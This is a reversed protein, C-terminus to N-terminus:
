DIAVTASAHMTFPKIGLLKQAVLKFDLNAKVTVDNGTTCSSNCSVTVDGSSLGIGPSKQIVRDKIGSTDTPAVQAYRAGERVSNTLESYTYIGRGLDITGLVIMFFINSVIAFEVTAQGLRARREDATRRTHRSKLSFTSGSARFMSDEFEAHLQEM